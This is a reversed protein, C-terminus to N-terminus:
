RPQARHRPTTDVHLESSVQHDAAALCRRRVVSYKKRLTKTRGIIIASATLKKIYFNHFHYWFSGNRSARLYRIHQSFSTSRSHQDGDQRLGPQHALICLSAGVTSLIARWCVCAYCQQQTTVCMCRGEGVQQDTPIVFFSCTPSM